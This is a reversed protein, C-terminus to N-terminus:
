AFSQSIKSHQRLYYLVFVSSILPVIYLYVYPILVFGYFVALYIKLSAAAILQLPMKQPRLKLWYWAALLMVTLLSAWLHIQKFQELKQEVPASSNDYFLAALGTGRFLQFPKEGAAQWSQGKWEGLGAITYTNIGRFFIDIDNSLFPIVYLLLIGGAIVAVCKLVDSIGKEKWLLLFFFPLWLVLSYRSLLCLILALGMTWWKGKEVSLLFFAYYAGILLEVTRMLSLDAYLLYGWFIFQMLVFLYLHVVDDAFQQLLKQSFVLLLLMWGAFVLYRYDIMMFETLHFPGWTLPLYTPFFDYGWETIISYPFSGHQHRKVLTEIQPIIDSEQVNVPHLNLNRAWFIFCVAIAAWWIYKLQEKSRENLFTKSVPTETHILFPFLGILMSLLFLFFGNWAPSLFTSRLFTTFLIELAILLFLLSASLSYSLRPKQLMRKMKCCVLYVFLGSIIGAKKDIM